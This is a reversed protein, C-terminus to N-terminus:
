IGKACKACMQEGNELYLGDFSNISGCGAGCQVCKKQNAKAAEIGAQTDDYEKKCKECFKIEKGDRTVCCTARCTCAWSCGECKQRSKAM